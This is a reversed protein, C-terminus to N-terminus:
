YLFDPADERSIVEAAVGEPVSERLIRAVGGHDKVTKWFWVRDLYVYYVDQHPVTDLRVTFLLDAAEVTIDVPKAVSHEKTLRVRLFEVCGGGAKDNCPRFRPFSSVRPLSGLYLMAGLKDRWYPWPIPEASLRRRLMEVKGVTQEPVYSGIVHAFVLPCRVANPVQDFGTMAPDLNVYQPKRVALWSVLRRQEYLPSTNYLNAEYVPAQGTLIYLIPDDSLAFVDGGGGGSNQRIWALVRLDDQFLAFHEPAYENANAAELQQKEYRMLHLSDALRRPSTELAEILNGASGAHILLFLFAGSIVSVCIYELWSRRRPQLFLYALLGTLCVSLADPGLDRLIHKQAVMYGVVGLGLVADAYISSTKRSRLREFLGLAILILPVALTLLGQGLYNKIGEVVDTPLAVCVALDGLHLQFQLFDALQGHLKLWVLLLTGTGIPVGFEWGLRKRWSKWLRPKLTWLDLMLKSGIAAGAYILQAPEFFMALACSLWFWVAGRTGHTRANDIVLYSLVLDVALLYRFSNGLLLSHDAVLLVTTAFISMSLRYGSLRYFSAFFITFLVWMFLWRLIIGTPLPLEFVYLGSYSSWFDRFPLFGMHALYNWYTINNSDWLPPFLRVGIGTIYDRLSPFLIVGILCSVVIPVLMRAWAPPRTAPSAAAREMWHRLPQANRLAGLLLWAVVGLAVAALLSLLMAIQNAAVSRGLFTADGVCLSAPALRHYRHVVVPVIREMALVTAWALPLHLCRTPSFLGAFLYLIFSLAILPPLFEATPLKLEFSAWRAGGIHRLAINVRSLILPDNNAAFFHFAGDLVEPSKLNSSAWVRLDDPGFRRLVGDSDDVEISYIKVEAYAVDTPDLRLIAINESVGTFTYVVRQERVLKQLLPEGSGNLFVKVNNGNDVQMDVKVVATRGQFVHPLAELLFLSTLTALTVFLPIRIRSFWNGSILERPLPSIPSGISM